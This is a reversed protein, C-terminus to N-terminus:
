PGIHDAAELSESGLKGVETPQGRLKLAVFFGATAKTLYKRLALDVCRVLWQVLGVTHM